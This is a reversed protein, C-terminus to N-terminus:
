EGRAQLQIGSDEDANSGRKECCKKEGGFQQGFGEKERTTQAENGISGGGRAEQDWVGGRTVYGVELSDSTFIATQM